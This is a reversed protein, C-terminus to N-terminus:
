KGSSPTGAGRSGRRYGGSFSQDNTTPQGLADLYGNTQDGLLDFLIGVSHSNFHGLLKDFMGPVRSSFMKGYRDGLAGGLMDTMSKVGADRLSQKGISALTFEKIPDVLKSALDLAKPTKLGGFTFYDAVAGPIAAVQNIFFEDQSQKGTLAEINNKWITGAIPTYGVVEAFTNLEETHADQLATAKQFWQQNALYDSAGSTVQNYTDGIWSLVSNGSPDTLNVPNNYAYVYRNLSQNAGPFGPFTDRTIFRGVSPDYYRARLYILGSPDTQEGAFRISSGGGSGSSARIAGFADYSYSASLTGTDDSEAILSGLADTHGYRQIAGATTAIQGHGYTYLTAQGGTTEALVQANSMGTDYLYTTTIGGTAQMQRKGDGDYGYSTGGSISILRGLPDYSYSTTGKQLLAGDVSWTNSIVGDSTLRDAADYSSTTTIGNLALQTRNGMPDYSYSALDSNPYAASSLRYLADYSYSTTGSSDVMTLRNGVADYSYQLSALVVSAPTKHTIDTIHGLNDYSYNTTTGNPMAAGTVRSANDYQYSTTRSMWDTVTILHGVADYTSTVTKGDPYGLSVRNGVADYGYSVTQAGPNTVSTTRNIADYSYSTTGTPDTMTLRNGNADYSYTVSTGTFAYGILRNLADYSSTIVAGSPRQVSVRNSAADYQYSTTNSLPDTVTVLRNLQDYAASTTHANADTLATRNSNADYSYSVTMGTADTTSTIRGLADYANTTINGLADTVTLRNGNADYSSTVAMGAANTTSTVRGLADYANATINGLPDTVSVRNGEADYGTIVTNGFSNTVVTEHNNADYISTTIHGLVDTVTVRNGVADYGLTTTHSLPDTTAILQDKADYTMTTTNGRGDTASVKNGVPDYSLLATQSLANTTSIVNGVADYRFHALNGRPDRASIQRGIADYTFQQTGSLANTVSIRNGTSDYSFQTIAGRPDTQSTPLGQATYSSNTTNSIPDTATLLNGAADYSMTTRNGLADTRTLPHNQADYTIAVSNNLPDIMKTINGRADYEYNTAYGRRDILATRNNVADYQYSTTQGLADVESVIRSQSDYVYSTIRGLTDTVTTTRNPLDYSLTTQGNLADLQSVVRGSVDYTSQVFTHNNADTIASLRGGTDYAYSTTFGRPDTVSALHGDVTYTFSVTRGAPDTLGTVHNAPNYTLTLTRGTPEVISTLNGGTYNLATINGNRDIIQDFRGNLDFHYRYQNKLTETFSGDVAHSLTDFTGPPPLYVGDTIRQTYAVVSGDGHRIQVTPSMGATATIVTLAMDYSHNWGPGLATNATVGSNYSRTWALPGSITPFSLDTYQYSYTGFVMNVPDAAFRSWYARLAANYAIWAEKGTWPDFLVNNDVQNGQGNPNLTPHYPGSMAGWSNNRADLPTTGTYRLGYGNDAITNGTLVFSAFSASTTNVNIGDSRNNRITSREILITPTRTNYPQLYVGDSSSLEVVSDQLTLDGTSCISSYNSTYACGYSSYAYGAYRVTTFQLVLQSLEGGSLGGWDGATPLTTVGDNNSDGGVTDDRLSTFVVSQSATGQAQLIAGLGLSLRVGFGPRVKIVTGAPITLTAGGALDASSALYHPYGGVSAWAGASLWGWVGVGTYHNGSITNGSYSPVVAPYGSGIGIAIEHNTITNNTLQVPANFLAIGVSRYNLDSGVPTRTRSITNNSVLGANTTDHLEIAGYGLDGQNGNNSFTNGSLTFAAVQDLRVGVAANQSFTNNRIILSGPQASTSSVYVGSQNNTRVMTREILISPTRGSFPELYVGHQSSLEVVSDQLTLDGTSCISSYNSTYACGYSSYAYGAYRVTTFQLVLQSLEGGSLGGWDGATPLTTVGDNNSDGGVTDDRLSTFVVSQSATGQAQLIAGLGLSLRVGFGPRVKIVTGAPITLTAGGALDASSALYHPYGGVSAWAGASLSGWVGVGTYHNGSITNGSYSPVVAPYGAGIGIAIEHNSITNGTLQVPANFLAIGVSRYNLDSGVPTRTRSITNNSVLGANTTDHLEIAGYGLDGQNGNNSFTNGSLTFAAVQDLRVGVAANQSFTNNRIILSGPQASTSSVYVGSQNNTRVMTREILISPTRGSFPELYVGHQSSLEVVSDQLTLDGTSCISSYNSTYACGYSSYAYGAYRVTTFQLVLQSLEGGSLGGWDGATPLTTVGDNNSDGGVTDDRLSTFVVSQSATGQAQLIAGLGLSLRVGFGPRVKIVTGAPITLTAGGALDASSALYHPYGGVSAWAGASLSGWVGVGTYHNGSITNGSYSPVVAPYGAGIGIAIEHNTITNNTLQVPANFLAIGVSRYDLDLNVPTRTRSITNNSVLGASTADHIEIAGTGLDGQNGNNSFTNGSLTFAAVQDLRVGVAANQSFTNNRIILSGPQASTSSVYVGSQNNTRVMTREILISPTRGSFPELYVGHQLSLEVVSDQLTLDGTSYISGYPSYNYSGGYRVTTFQVVMQSLEGGSLGGWDGPAPLTLSGDGNTDGGVTDDKISTFTIPQAATGQAQLIAQSSLDLRTNAAFKVVVGPDIVLLVGSAVTTNCTVQYPSNALM